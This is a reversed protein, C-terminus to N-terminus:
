TASGKAPRPCRTTARWSTTACRLSPSGSAPDTSTPPTAASCTGRAGAARASRTPRSATSRPTADRRQGRHGLRQGQHRGLLRRRRDTVGDFTNGRVIGGTTGEKVDISESTTDYITNGEVLNRDSNDPQCDTIDCWNSDASGIYIGEGFKERRLGTDSIDNGIVQNDTSHKRLHIAEDGIHFVTLREIISGVTGDAMVGKQGNTVSFGLLHWYKAGDLHFVYDGEYDGGDLVADASGCLTIREDATGSNTAVFEGVYHNDALLIVDGPEAAALADHLEEANGVEVTADPCDAPAGSSTPAERRPTRRRCRPADRTPPM